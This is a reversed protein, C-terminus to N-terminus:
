ISGGRKEQTVTRENDCFRSTYEFEYQGMEKFEYKKKLYYYDLSYVRM